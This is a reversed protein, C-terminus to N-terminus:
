EGDSDFEDAINFNTVSIAIAQKEGSLQEWTKMKFTCTAIFQVHNVTTCDMANTVPVVINTRVFQVEKQQVIGACRHPLKITLANDTYFINEIASKTATKIEEWLNRQASVRSSDGDYETGLSQRYRKNGFWTLYVGRQISLSNGDKTLTANITGKDSTLTAAGVYLDVEIYRVSDELYVRILYPERLSLSYNAAPAAPRDKGLGQLREALDDVDGSGSTAAAAVKKSATSAAAPPSKKPPMEDDKGDDSGTYYYGEADDTTAAPSSHHHSLTPNTDRGCQFLLFIVLNM